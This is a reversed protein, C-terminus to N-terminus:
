YAGRPRRLHYGGGSALQFPEHSPDSRDECQANRHRVAGRFGGFAGEALGGLGVPFTIVRRREGPVRHGAAELVATLVAIVDEDDVVIFYALSENNTM